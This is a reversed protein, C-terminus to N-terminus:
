ALTEPVQLRPYGWFASTIWLSPEPQQPSDPVHGTGPFFERLPQCLGGTFPGHVRHSWLQARHAVSLGSVNSVM